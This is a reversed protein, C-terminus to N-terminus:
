ILEIDSVLAGNKKLAHFISILDELGTGLANLSKVLDNLTTKKDVFYLSNQKSKKDDESGVEIVLDGHSIAVPKLYINGGAIITGTRENIIIKTASDPSVKFNEIIAVLSVIKRQYNPPIIVDITSSDKSTAFKGGLEKNIIKEIRASTTFDPNKLSM